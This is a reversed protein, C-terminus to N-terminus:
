PWNCDLAVSADSYVGAVMVCEVGSPLTFECLKIYPGMDNCNPLEELRLTRYNTGEEGVGPQGCAAVFLLLLLLGLM